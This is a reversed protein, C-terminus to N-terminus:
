PSIIRLCRVQSSKVQSAFEITSHDKRTLHTTTSPIHPNNRWPDDCFLFLDCYFFRRLYEVDPDLFFTFGSGLVRRISVLENLVTLKEQPTRVASRVEDAMGM